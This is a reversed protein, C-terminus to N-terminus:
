RRTILRMVVPLVDLDADYEGRVPDSSCPQSASSTASVELQQCFDRICSHHDGNRNHSHQSHVARRELPHPRQVGLPIRTSHAHALIFACVRDDMSFLLFELVFVVRAMVASYRMALYAITVWSLGPRRWMREVEDTLTLGTDFWLVAADVLKSPAVPPLYARLMGSSAM